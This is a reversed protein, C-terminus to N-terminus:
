KNADAVLGEVRAGKAAVVRTGEILPEHLTGVFTDGTQHTNTSIATATRVKLVTGEMLTVIRSQPRSAEAVRASPTPEIASETATTCGTLAVAAAAALWKRKGVSKM